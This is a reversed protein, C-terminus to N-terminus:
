ELSEWTLQKKVIQAKLNKYENLMKKAPEYNSHFCALAAAQKEGNEAAQFLRQIDPFIKGNIFPAVPRWLLPHVPRGAAWREHAYDSLIHALKANARQDMGQIRNVEVEMFFAKLVMQNWAAEEFYEAPYPNDLAIAEFVSSMNTRLGEAARRTFAEPFALLPLAGYLAVQENMEASKFLNEIQRVYQTEDAVPWQLLWWTRVLRDAQWGSLSLGARVQQLTRHASESVTIEAKHVFRPIATFTLNFLAPEPDAMYRQRQKEVWDFSSPDLSQRILHMLQEDMKEVEYPYAM